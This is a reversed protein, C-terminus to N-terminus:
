IKTFGEGNKKVRVTFDKEAVVVKERKRLM